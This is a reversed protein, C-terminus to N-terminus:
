GSWFWATLKPHKSAWKWTDTLSLLWYLVELFPHKDLIVPCFTRNVTKHQLSSDCFLIIENILLVILTTDYFCWTRQLICICEEDFFFFGFGFAIYNILVLLFNSINFFPDIPCSHLFCNLWVLLYDLPAVLLPNQPKSDSFPALYM